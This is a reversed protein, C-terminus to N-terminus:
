DLVTEQEVLNGEQSNSGDDACIIKTEWELRSHNPFRFSYWVIYSERFFPHVRKSNYGIGPKERPLKECSAAPRETRISLYGGRILTRAAKDTSRSTSTNLEHLTLISSRHFQKVAGNVQHQSHHRKDDCSMSVNSKETLM